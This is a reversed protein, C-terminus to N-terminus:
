EKRDADPVQGRKKAARDSVFWMIAGFIIGSVLAQLIFGIWTGNSMLYVQWSDTGPTGIYFRIIATAITVPLGFMLIGNVVIFRLMGKKKVADWNTVNIM